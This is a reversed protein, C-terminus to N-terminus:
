PWRDETVTDMAASIVPVNLMIDGALRTRVDADRPLLRFLRCFCSM